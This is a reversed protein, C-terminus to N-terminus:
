TSTAPGRDGRSIGPSPIRRTELAGAARPRETTAIYTVVLDSDGVYKGGVREVTALHKADKGLTDVIVKRADEFPNLLVAVRDGLEAIEDFLVQATPIPVHAWDQALSDQDDTQYQPSHCLALCVRFLQRTLRKATVSTRDGRLRWAKSLAQWPPDALNAAPAAETTTFLNHEPRDM